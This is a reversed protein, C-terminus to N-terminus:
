VLIGCGHLLGTLLGCIRQCLQAMDIFFHLPDDYFYFFLGVAGVYRDLLNIARHFEDSGDCLLCIQQAQISGDFRRSGSLASSSEGYHSVLDLLQGFLGVLGTM